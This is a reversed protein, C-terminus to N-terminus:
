YEDDSLNGTDALEKELGLVQLLHYGTMPQPEKDCHATGCLRHIPRYRGSQYTQDPIVCNM